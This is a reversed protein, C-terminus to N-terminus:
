EVLQIPRRGGLTTFISELQESYEEISGEAHFHEGGGIEAIEDMIALNPASGVSVAWIKIGEDAADQAAALAYAEGGSVSFSGTESVNAIGDTLLILVKKAAGRARVSTLEDIGEHIGGGINTNSDYHGAQMTALRNAVAQFDDGLDIEHHTTTAYVELSVHDDTDLDTLVNMLHQVSDKIAQMPQTRTDALEPTLNNQERNELLYNVFTKIGYRYQFASNASYMTTSTSMMYNRIYDHWITGSASLTRGMMSEAWSVESSTVTSNANGPTAGVLSWRGGAIGSNWTALGLAVAVRYPYVSTTDAGSNTMIANVETANYGQQTLYTSLTANSWSQRYGLRVLGTDSTPNYSSDVTETGFGLRRM